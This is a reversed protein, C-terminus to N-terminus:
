KGICFQSFISGLIEETDVRGAIEGLLDLSERLDLAVIEPDAQARLSDAARDLAEEARKLRDRHRANIAVSHEGWDAEGFEALERIRGRLEGLGAGDVCSVQLDEVDNWQPHIGLDVKNLVRITRPADPLDGPLADDPSLSADAVVILLDARGAEKRTRRIGEEEIEGEAVRLGATDVVRLPIGEVVLMEEITDRTTGAADSVIARDEGLLANLLSSKGANPLGCIVTRLGERLVRGQDATSLLSRIGETVSAMRALLAEGTAPDIDEEPFDIWAELQAVVGILEERLGETRQGLRGELQEHAARLALHSQASILDMVAEAQTLDLKGNFFARETFEGPGASRAGCDLLRRLVQSTVFRGGHTAVEAVPEGTYSRPGHFFTVLVQDIVGGEADRITRLVAKRDPWEPSSGCAASVVAAADPGSVRILAVAGTGGATALAAITDGGMM